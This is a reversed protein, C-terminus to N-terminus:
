GHRLWAAFDLRERWCRCDRHFIPPTGGGGALQAAEAQTIARNYVRFDDIFGAFRGDYPHIEFIAAPLASHKGMSVTGVPQGNFFVSATTGAHTTVVHVWTDTPM